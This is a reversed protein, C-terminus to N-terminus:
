KCLGYFVVFTHCDCSLFKLLDILLNQNKLNIKIKIFIERFNKM